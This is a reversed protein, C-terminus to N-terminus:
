IDKLRAESWDWYKIAIFLEEGSGRGKKSPSIMYACCIGKLFLGEEKQEQSSM